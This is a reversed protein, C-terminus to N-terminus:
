PRLVQRTPRQPTYDTMLPRIADAMTEAVAMHGWWNLHVEFDNFPFVVQDIRERFAAAGDIVPINMKKGTERMMAYYDGLIGDLSLVHEVADPELVFVAKAGAQQITHGLQELNRRYRDLAGREGETFWRILGYGHHDNKVYDVIFLDPRHSLLAQKTIKLGYDTTTAVRGLNVVKVTKGPNAENLLGELLVSYRRTARFEDKYTPAFTSSGGLCVIVYTKRREITGEAPIGEFAQEIRLELPDNDVTEIIKLGGFALGISAMTFAPIFLILFWKRPRINMPRQVFSFRFYIFLSFLIPLPWGLWWVEVGKWTNMAIGLTLIILLITYPFGVWLRVYPSPRNTPDGHPGYRLLGVLFFLAFTVFSLLWISPAQHTPIVKSSEFFTFWNAIAGPKLEKLVPDLRYHGGPCAEGRDSDQHELTEAEIPAEPVLDITGADFSFWGSSFKPNASIRALRYRGENVTSEVLHFVDDTQLCLDLGSPNPALARSMQDFIKQRHVLSDRYAEGRTTANLHVTPYESTIGSVLLATVLSVIVYLLTWGIVAKARDVLRTTDNM